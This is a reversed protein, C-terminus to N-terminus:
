RVAEQRERMVSRYARLFLMGANKDPPVYDAFRPNQALRPTVSRWFSAWTMDHGSLLYDNLAKLLPDNVTLTGIGKTTILHTDPAQNLVADLLTAGGCNGLFVLAASPPIKAITSDVYPSHGRHVIVSPTVHRQRFVAEIDSVGQDDASFKNAYIEIRRGPQQSVVRIFSGHDEIRWAKTRQYQAVFSHFSQQGDEDNYFFYWQISTEDHFMRELPIRTDDPLAPLYPTAMTTLEANALAPAHEQVLKAILLGYIVVADRHQEQAARTYEVKLTEGLLRLTHADLPAALLEAATMAQEPVEL